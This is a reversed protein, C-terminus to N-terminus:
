PRAVSARSAKPTIPSLMWVALACAILGLNKSIGGMPNALQIPDTAVVIAVIVFMAVTMLASALREARGSILWLGAIIEAVGLMALTAEPTPWYFGSREALLIEETSVVLLKPVLGEIMWVLGLAIRAAIKVSWLRLALDPAIGREIWLRLRDFSWRTAWVMLPRFILRDILRGPWGYRVRYDYVTSFRIAEDRPEYVWSGSGERILSWADESGFRLASSRNGREGITEGWGEITKGFAIRTAYRFRQPADQETRPLYDIHSFRADWRVHECPTQTLRWLTDLDSRIITEATLKM